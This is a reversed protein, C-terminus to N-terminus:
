KPNEVGTLRSKNEAQRERLKQVQARIYNLREEFPLMGARQFNRDRIERILKVARVTM